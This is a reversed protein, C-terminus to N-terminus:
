YIWVLCADFMTQIFKVKNRFNWSSHSAATKLVDISDIVNRPISRLKANSKENLLRFTNLGDIFTILTSILDFTLLNAQLKGICYRCRKNHGQWFAQFIRCSQFYAAAIAGRQFLLTPFQSAATLIAKQMTEALFSDSAIRSHCKSSTSEGNDILTSILDRIPPFFVKAFEIRHIGTLDMYYGVRELLTPLREGAVFATFIHRCANVFAIGTEGISMGVDFGQRLMDACSQMSETNFAVFGYYFGYLRPLLEASYSYYRKRWCSMAAKGIRSADEIDSKGVCLANAYYVFGTISYKCLGNKMTFQVMRCALFPQMQHLIATAISSILQYFIMTIVLREDMEKMELLDKDCISKLMVSTEQILKYKQVPQLSQPIEEGLESLVQHCLTYAEMVRKQNAVVIDISVIIITLLVFEPWHMEFRDLRTHMKSRALLECAPLKDEFSQCQGIMDRLICEAKDSDGCSYHSKALRLSYELSIDYHSKWHDTPLLSLARTFYSRSTVYDSCIVAKTGALENLKAIEIRLEPSEDELSGIGLKIQDVISFLVDDVDQGKTM